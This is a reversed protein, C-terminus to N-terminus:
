VPGGIFLPAETELAAVLSDIDTQTHRLSVAVRIRAQQPPVTPPRIAAVRIGLKELYKQLHLANKPTGVMIPLIPSKIQPIAWGQKRLQNAILSARTILADAESRLTPVLDWAAQMVAIQIPSPATSYILGKAANVLYRKISPPCTVYAGQCGLAKSFTGMVVDIEDGYAETKGYGQHGFLGTAHAEDVYLMAQYQKALAILKPLDVCDGDMGFVSETLIFRPQKRDKTKELWYALHDLDIHQYRHQKVGVQQCAIHMSAHNLKDSFVLPSAGLVKPNLLASLVAHNAQFGTAFVLASGADKKKAIQSELTHLSQQQTTILRSAKAGVGYKKAASQAALVLSPHQSINLYDNDSFDIRPQYSKPLQRLLNARRLTACHTTYPTHLRNM